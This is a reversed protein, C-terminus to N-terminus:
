SHSRSPETVPYLVAQQDLDCVSQLRHHAIFVTDRRAPILEHDHQGEGIRLLYGM